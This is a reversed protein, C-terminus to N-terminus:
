GATSPNVRRSSAEALRSAALTLHHTLLSDDYSSRIRNPKGRVADIFARNQREYPTAFESPPKITKPETGERVILRPDLVELTLALGDSMIDLGARHLGPLLSTTSFSGVAGSDFRVTTETVDLIDSDPYAPRPVRRGSAAVPEMEGVLYRALDFVHTAQEVIQGGSQDKHTWWRAGPTDGLWSGIVLQAPHAQLLERARDVVDLYRFQYGVCAVVGKDHIARAIRAPGDEDVGLPKEVFLALGREVVALAPEVAAYPPLCVFVADLEAADLMSRYDAFVRAGSSEALLGAAASNRAAIGVVRVDDFGALVSLHVRTIWGSGVIGVRTAAM